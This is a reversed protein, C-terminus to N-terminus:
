LVASPIVSRISAAVHEAARFGRQPADGFTDRLPEGRLFALARRRGAGGPNHDLLAVLGGRSTALMTTSTGAPTPPLATPARWSFGCPGGPGPTTTTAPPPPLHPCGRHRLADKAPPRTFCRRRGGAPPRRRGERPTPPRRRRHHRRRPREGTFASATSGQARRTPPPAAVARESAM